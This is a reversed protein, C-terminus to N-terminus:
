EFEAIKMCRNENFSRLGAEILRMVQLAENAPVPNPRGAVIADFIGAYYRTYDGPIGSITQDFLGDLGTPDHANALTLVGPVPDIGWGANDPRIGAKLADEQPDLGYKTFSGDTGHVLYRPGLKAALASGHLIVRLGDYRLIAHFWDDTAAGDRQRQLDLSISHPMGFLLIAQDLLHPGLDYWLGSGPGGAERWRHRVQPRYRDFHSEFHTVRGISGSALVQQLSLFDADWRRNHFVSLLRGCQEARTILDQAQAVDLTFPKDVVVHKGAALALAALGFHTENPTPIVVLDIDPRAFLASASDCVDLMPYAAKVKGADSSSIARLKLGQTHTILPAHFTAAAFGFGVVGVNLTPTM